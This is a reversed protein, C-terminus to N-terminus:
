LSSEMGTMFYKQRFFISDSKFWLELDSYWNGHCMPSLSMTLSMMPICEALYLLALGRVPCIVQCRLFYIGSLFLCVLFFGFFCFGQLDPIGDFCFYAFLCFDPIVDSCFCAFLCFLIQENEQNHKHNWLTHIHWFTLNDVSICATM